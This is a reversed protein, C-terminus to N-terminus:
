VNVPNNPNALVDDASTSDDEKVDGYFTYNGSGPAYFEVNNISAQEQSDGNNSKSWIQVENSKLVDVDNSYFKIWGYPEIENGPDGNDYIYITGNMILRQWGQIDINQQNYWLAVIAKINPNNKYIANVQIRSTAVFGSGANYDTFNVKQSGDANTEYRKAGYNKGDVVIEYNCIYEPNLTFTVSNVYSTNNYSGMKWQNLTQAQKIIQETINSTLSEFKTITIDDFYIDGNNSSIYIKNAITTNDLVTFELNFRQWDTTLTFNNYRKNTDDNKSVGMEMSTNENIAKVYLSLVYKGYPELLPNLTGIANTGELCGGEVGISDQHTAGSWSIGNSRVSASGNCDFSVCPTKILINMGQKLLLDFMTKDPSDEFQKKFDESTAQDYIIQVLEECIPIDSYFQKDRDMTTLFAIQIAEGFTIELTSDTSDNYNKVAVRRELVTDGTDLILCAACAEM